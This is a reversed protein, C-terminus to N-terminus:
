KSVNQFNSAGCHPCKERSSNYSAGCYECKILSKTTKQEYDTIDQKLLESVSSGNNSSSSRHTTHSARTKFVSMLIISIFVGAFFFPVLTMNFTMGSFVMGIFCICFIILCVVSAVSKAKNSKKDKNDM